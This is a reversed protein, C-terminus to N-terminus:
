RTLSNKSASRAGHAQGSRRETAAKLTTKKPGAQTAAKAPGRAARGAAVGEIASHVRRSSAVSTRPAPVDGPDSVTSRVDREAVAPTAAAAASTPPFFFTVLLNNVSVLANYFDVMGRDYRFRPFAQAIVAMGVRAVVLTPVVVPSSVVFLGARIARDLQDWRLESQDWADSDAPTVVPPHFFSELRAALDLLRAECGSYICGYGELLGLLAIPVTVPLALLGLGSRLARDMRDRLVDLDSATSSAVASSSAALAVDSPYDRSIGLPASVVGATLATCVGLVGVSRRFGAWM